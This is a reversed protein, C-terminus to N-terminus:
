MGCLALFERRQKGKRFSGLLASTVMAGRSKRGMDSCGCDTCGCVQAEYRVYDLALNWVREVADAAVEASISSAAGGRASTTVMFWRIFKKHYM